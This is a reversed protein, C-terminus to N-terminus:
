KMFNFANIVDLLNRSTFTVEWDGTRKAGPFFQARYVNEENKMKLVMTYPPALKYPKYRDVNKLAKEVGARIMDCAVEPHVSLTSAGIGKKLACTEVEGFLEEAQICIAEDGAIFAVPVGYMGAILACYGAEPLSVGNISFDM